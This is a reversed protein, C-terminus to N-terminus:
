EPVGAKRLGDLLRELDEKRKYHSRDRARNITYPTLAISRRYNNIKKLLNRAEQPQGAYAYAAILHATRTGFAIDNGVSKELTEIAKTWNSSAFQSVGLPFFYASRHRPNLRMATKISEVAGQPDGGWNQATALRYYNDANNPDLSIARQMKGLAEDYFGDIYNLRAAVRYALSNPRRMAKSLSIRAQEISSWNESFGLYTHWNRITATIYISALSAHAEAYNPDLKLAHKLLKVAEFINDPSRQRSLHVARLYADYAEVSKTRSSAALRETPQLESTLLAVIQRTIADQTEFLAEVDRDFREAWRQTGTKTDILYVNLRMRKGQRRVTGDLVYKVGLESGISRIDPKDSRYAFSSHRSIVFLGSMKSLDTILDESIGDSFYGHAPDPNQNKFPLVAISPKDPLAIAPKQAKQPLTGSWQLGGFFSGAFVTAIVISLLLPHRLLHPRPLYTRWPRKIGTEVRYVHLPNALNKVQQRGLDTFNIPLKSHVEQYVINSVYIGGPPAIQELRAAANVGEGFIDHEEFIVDGFNIGIRYDIPQKTNTQSNHEALQKQFTFAFTVADTVSNFACVAGDGTSKVIEGNHSQIGLVFIDNYVAMVAAHTAAENREMMTTYGVIDAVVVAALRREGGRDHDQRMDVINDAM